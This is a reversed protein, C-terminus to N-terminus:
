KRTGFLKSDSYSYDIMTQKAEQMYKNRVSTVKGLLEAPSFTNFDKSSLQQKMASPVRIYNADLYIVVMFDSLIEIETDSLEIRFYGCLDDRNKLDQKCSKFKVIAPRIYDFMIDHVEAETLSLFDYDKVKSLVSDYLVSYPTAIM